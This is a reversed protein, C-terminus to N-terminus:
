RRRRRHKKHKKRAKGATAPKSRAFGFDATLIIANSALPNNPSGSVAGIGVDRYRSEFVNARHPSSLMWSRVLARPTGLLLSGWGLNEGVAALGAPRRVTLIPADV